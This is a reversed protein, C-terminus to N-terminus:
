KPWAAALRQAETAPLRRAATGYLRYLAMLDRAREQRARDAPNLDTALRLASHPRVTM